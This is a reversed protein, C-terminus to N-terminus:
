SGLLTALIWITKSDWVKSFEFTEVIVTLLGLQEQFLSSPLVAKPAGTHCPARFGDYQTRYWKCSGFATWAYRGAPLVVPFCEPLPVFWPCCFCFFRIVCFTVFTLSSSSIFPGQTVSAVQCALLLGLNNNGLGSNHLLCWGLTNEPQIRWVDPMTGLDELNFRLWAQTMWTRVEALCQPYVFITNEPNSSFSLSRRTM